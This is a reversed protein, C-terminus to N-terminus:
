LPFASYDFCRHKYVMPWLKKNQRGHCPFASTVLSATTTDVIQLNLTWSGMYSINGQRMHPATIRGMGQDMHELSTTLENLGLCFPRWKSFSMKFHMKKFSFRQIGIWNESSNTALPWISLIAAKTWIIAQHRKPSLGNDSGIITLKSVCIHMVWGWHTLALKILHNMTPMKSFNDVKRFCPDSSSHSYFHIAPPM